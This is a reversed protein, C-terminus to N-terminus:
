NWPVFVARYGIDKWRNIHREDLLRESKKWNPSKLWRNRAVSKGGHSLLEREINRLFNLQITKSDIGLLHNTVSKSSETVADWVNRPPTTKILSAIQADGMEYFEHDSSWGRM